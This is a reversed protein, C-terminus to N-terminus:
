YCSCADREDRDLRSCNSCGLLSDGPAFLARLFTRVKGEGADESVNEALM